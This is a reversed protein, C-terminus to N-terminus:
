IAVVDYPNGLAKVLKRFEGITLQVTESNINPPFCLIDHEWVETDIILKILHETDRILALPSVAGKEVKLLETMEEFSAFSLKRAKLVKRVERLEVEKLGPVSLIFYEKRKSDKLFFNKPHMGPVHYSKERAEELTEVPPHTFLHYQISHEELWDSLIPDM